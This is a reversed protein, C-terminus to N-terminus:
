LNCIGVLMQCYRAAGSLLEEIALLSPHRRISSRAYRQYPPYLLYKFQSDPSPSGTRLNTAFIAGTRLASNKVPSAPSPDRSSKRFPPMKASGTPLLNAASREAKRNRPQGLAGAKAFFRHPRRQPPKDVM